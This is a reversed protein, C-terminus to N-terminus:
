SFCCTTVNRVYKYQSDVVLAEDATDQTMWKLDRTVLREGREVVVPSGRIVSSLYDSPLTRLSTIPLDELMGSTDEHNEVELRAEETLTVNGYGLIKDDLGIQYM